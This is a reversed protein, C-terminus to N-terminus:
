EVTIRITANSLTANNCYYTTGSDVVEHWDDAYEYFRKTTLTSTLTNDTMDSPKQNFNIVSDNLIFNIDIPTCYYTMVGQFKPDAFYIKQLLDSADLDECIQLNNAYECIASIISKTATEADFGRTKHLTIQLIPSLPKCETWKVTKTFESGILGDINEVFEKALNKGGAADVAATTADYVSPIGPTLRDYIANAIFIDLNDNEDTEDKFPYRRRVLVEVEHSSTHNLVKADIINPNTLLVGKISDIVTVAENAASSNRRARLSADSEQITGKIGDTSQTVTVLSNASTIQVFGVITNAPIDIAGLTDCILPLVITRNTASLDFTYQQNVIEPLYYSRNSDISWTLGNKDIFKTTTSTSFSTEAYDDPFTLTVDCISATAPRRSINSFSALVELAYGSAVSPDLSAYMQNLAQLLSNIMLAVSTIYQGDVSADSVDIDEGYIQKYNKVLTQKIDVFSAISLGNASFEVLNSMTYANNIFGSM